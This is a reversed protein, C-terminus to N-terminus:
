VFIYLTINLRTNINSILIYQIFYKNKGKKQGLKKYILCFGWKKNLFYKKLIKKDKYKTNKM